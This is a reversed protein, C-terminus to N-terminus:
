FKKFEEPRGDAKREDIKKEKQDLLQRYAVDIVHDLVQYFEPGEHSSIVHYTPTTIRLEVHHHAHTKAPQLVLDLQQPTKDNALFHEIKALQKNAHDELVKSHDMGRFTFKKNM